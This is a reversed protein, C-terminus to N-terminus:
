LGRSTGWGHGRLIERWAEVVVGEAGGDVLGQGILQLAQVLELGEVGGFGGLAQGAVQVLQALDGQRCQGLRLPLLLLQSQHVLDHAQELLLGGVGDASAVLKVGAGAQQLFQSGRGEQGVFGRQGTGQDGQGVAGQQDIGGTLGADTKGQLRLTGRGIADVQEAGEDLPAPQAQQLLRQRRM